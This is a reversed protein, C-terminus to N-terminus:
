GVMHSALVLGEDKDGKRREEEESTKERIERVDGGRM